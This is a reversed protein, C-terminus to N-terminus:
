HYVEIVTHMTQRYYKSTNPTLTKFFPSQSKTASQWDFVDLEPSSHQLVQYWYAINQYQRSYIEHFHTVITTIQVNAISANRISCLHMFVNCQWRLFCVPLVLLHDFCLQFIYKIIQKYTKVPSLHLWNGRAYTWHICDMDHLWFKVNDICQICSHYLVTMPQWLFAPSLLWASPWTNSSASSTHREGSSNLKSLQKCYLKYQIISCFPLGYPCCSGASRTKSCICCESFKAAICNDDATFSCTCLQLLHHHPHYTPSHKKQYWSVWTTGTLPWLVTTTTTTEVDSISPGPPSDGEKQHV